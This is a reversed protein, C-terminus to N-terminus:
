AGVMEELTKPWDDKLLRSLSRDALLRGENQCRACYNTENEAYVIHQIPAGCEPCPHGFRNHVAFDPRFATVEAPKPFKPVERQLRETWASLVRQASEHLRGVAADDLAQTTKVPSLRADFLIEDSFANGIGDFASPDTLARKLTRNTARLRTAFAEPTATLVDLGGRTHERLGERGQVLHISARKKTSTEVLTLLGSSFRWAALQIKGTARKPPPAPSQWQLRGAIMLHIVVFREEDMVLVLRKGLREVDLVRAGAVEAPKPAFSRLVFPNFVTLSELTEGAVRERLRTRYLEIDPLEPM